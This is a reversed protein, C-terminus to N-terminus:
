LDSFGSLWLFVCPSLMIFSTPLLLCLRLSFSSNFMFLDNYICHFVLNHLTSLSVAHFVLRWHLHLFTHLVTSSFHLCLLVEEKWWGAHTRVHVCVFVPLSFYFNLSTSFSMDKRYPPDPITTLLVMWEPHHSLRKLSPSQVMTFGCVWPRSLITYENM